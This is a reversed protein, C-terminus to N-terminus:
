LASEGNGNTKILRHNPGLFKSYEVESPFRSHSRGASSLLGGVLDAAVEQRLSALAAMLPISALLICPAPQM